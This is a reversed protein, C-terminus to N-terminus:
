MKTNENEKTKKKESNEKVEKEKNIEEVDKFGEMMENVSEIKEPKLTKFMKRQDYIQVLGQYQFWLIAVMVFAWGLNALKLYKYFDILNGVLITFFATFMILMLYFNWDLLRKPDGKTVKDGLSFIKDLPSNM